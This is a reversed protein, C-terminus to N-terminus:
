GAGEEGTGEVAPCPGQTTECPVICIGREPDLVAHPHTTGCIETVDEVGCRLCYARPWGSWRHESM